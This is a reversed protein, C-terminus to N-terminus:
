RDSVETHRHRVKPHAWLETRGGPSTYVRQYDYAELSEFTAAVRPQKRQEEQLAYILVYDVRVSGGTFANYVRLDAAPPEGDIKRLVARPNVQPDFRIPFHTTAGEYNSLNIVHGLAALYGGAHAMPAVKYSIWGGDEALGHPTFALPMVTSGPEMVALPAVYEELERNVAIYTRVHLGILALAAAVGIVGATKQLRPHLRCTAFWMMAAFFTYLELRPPIWLARDLESNKVFYMCVVLLVFALWGGGKSLTRDRRANRLIWIGTAAFTLVVALSVVLELHDYSALTAGVAMRRLLDWRTYFVIDGPNGAMAKQDLYPLALLAAPIFAAIPLLRRKWPGLGGGQRWQVLADWGSVVVIAMGALILPLMHAAFVVLTMAVMVATHTWNFNERRRLWYGLLFLSLALSLCFNYFGCHFLFNFTFPLALLAVWGSQRDVGRAAYLVGLPLLVIYVSLLIKEAVLPPLVLMLVAMVMHGLQNPLPEVRLDYFADLRANDGSLYASIIHASDVHAPGDQSPFFRFSWVTALQLVVMCALIVCVRGLSMTRSEGTKHLRANALFM